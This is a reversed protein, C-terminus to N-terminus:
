ARHAFADGPVFVEQANCCQNGFPRGAQPPLYTRYQDPVFPYQCSTVVACRMVQWVTIFDATQSGSQFDRDSFPDFDAPPDVSLLVCNNLRCAEADIDGACDEVTSVLGADSTGLNQHIGTDPLYTHPCWIRVPQCCFHELLCSNM